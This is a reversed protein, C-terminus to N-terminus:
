ELRGRSSIVSREKQIRAYGMCMLDRAVAQGPQAGRPAVAQRLGREAGDHAVAQGRTSSSVPVWQRASLHTPQPSVDAWKDAWKKPTAWEEFYTVSYM